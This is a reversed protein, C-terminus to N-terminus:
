EKVYLEPLKLRLVVDEPPDETEGKFLEAREIADRLNKRAERDLGALPYIENGSGDYVGAYEISNRYYEDNYNGDLSVIVTTADTPRQYFKTIIPLLVDAVNAPKGLLGSLETNSLKRYSM